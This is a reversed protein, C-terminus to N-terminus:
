SRGGGAPGATTDDEDGGPLAWAIGAAAAFIIGVATYLPWNVVLLAIGAIAAIAATPGFALVLAFPVWGKRAL